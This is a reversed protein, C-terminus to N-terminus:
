QARFIATKVRQSEGGYNEKQRLILNQAKPDNFLQGINQVASIPIKMQTARGIIDVSDLGLFHPTILEMLLARHSVRSTNNRFRVDSALDDIDLLQCLKKFQHDNGIALMLWEGDASQVVDGYPAINPHANGQRAAVTGTNLYNSAQNNLASLSADFLSVEIHSGEGTRLKHMLAILLGQKLQHGALVDILAVPMKTPPGDAQGNMSMWGTEAQIVADFGPRPDAPGYASISGYITSANIEKLQHYAMGLKEASGPKYNSIVIDATRILELAVDRDADVSLNLMVVDKAYNIGHYYASKPDKPDESPLKWKRTLDGGKAKNEIKIVKAGLEAFFMGVSPGALVSALEVVILDKFFSSTDIM